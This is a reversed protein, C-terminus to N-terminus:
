KLPLMFLIKHLNTYPPLFKLTVPNRQLAFSTNKSSHIVHLGPNIKRKM